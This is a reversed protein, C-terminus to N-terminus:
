ANTREVAGERRLIVGISRILIQLDLWLSWREVYQVHLEIREEMSIARRGKIAALAVVGPRVDFVKRQRASYREAASPLPPRPGVISMDGKLINVAQPLEDLGYSRLFRGIRTVRAEEAESWGSPQYGPPPLAMSRFKLLRFPRGGRGVREQIFLVPGPSSLKVLIAILVFLPLGLLLVALSAAVDLLRKLVLQLARM